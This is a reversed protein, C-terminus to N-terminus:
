SNTVTKIKIYVYRNHIRYLNNLHHVFSIIFKTKKKVVFIPFISYITLLHSPNPDYNLHSSLNRYQHFHIEKEM